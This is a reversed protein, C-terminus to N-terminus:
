AEPQFCERTWTNRALSPGVRNCHAMAAQWNRDKIAQIFHPFKTFLGPLGLNFAMDLLALKWSDPLADYDALRIRLGDDFAQLRKRLEADIADDPLLIGSMYAKPALGRTMGFVIGYRDIVEQATANFPLLLASGITPLMCGVGVTVNGTTDLYMWPVRGEFYEIKALSDALYM